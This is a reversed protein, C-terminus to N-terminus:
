TPAEGHRALVRAAAQRTATSPEGRPPPGTAKTARLAKPVRFSNLDQVFWKWPHAHKVRSPSDDDLYESIMEPARHDADIRETGPMARLVDGLAATAESDGRWDASSYTLSNKRESWLRKFLTFWDHGSMVSGRAPEPEDEAMAAECADRIAAPAAAVQESATPDCAPPPLDSGIGESGIGTLRSVRALSERPIHSCNADAKEPGPCTPKGPHDVKQHKAWGAIHGYAQGSVTYLVLLGVSVLREMVPGVDDDHAWLTAGQVRAKAARFNGYDDAVLLLSVFIRFELHSLTATKEDELLEPKITRIRGM